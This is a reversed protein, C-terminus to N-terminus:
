LTLRARNQGDHVQFKIKNIEGTYSYVRVSSNFDDVTINCICVVDSDTFVRACWHLLSTTFTICTGTCVDM